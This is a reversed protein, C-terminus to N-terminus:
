EDVRWIRSYLSSVSNLIFLEVKGEYGANLVAQYCCFLLTLICRTRHRRRNAEAFAPHFFCIYNSSECFVKLETPFNNNQSCQFYHRHLKHWLGSLCTQNDISNANCTSPFAIMNLHSQSPISM